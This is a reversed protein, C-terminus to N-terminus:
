VFADAVSPTLVLSTPTCRMSYGQSSYLRRGEANDKPTCFEEPIDKSPTMSLMRCSLTKELTLKKFTYSPLVVFRIWLSVDESKLTLDVTKNELFIPLILSNLLSSSDFLTAGVDWTVKNDGLALRQKKTPFYGVPTTTCNSGDCSKAIMSMNFSNLHVDALGLTPIGPPVHIQMANLVEANLGSCPWMTTNHLSISTGSLVSQVVSHVLGM